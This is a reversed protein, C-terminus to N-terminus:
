LRSFRGASTRKTQKRQLTFAHVTSLLTTLTGSRDNENQKFKRSYSYLVILLVADSIEVKETADSLTTVSTALFMKVILPIVVGREFVDPLSLDLVPSEVPVTVGVFRIEDGAVFSKM